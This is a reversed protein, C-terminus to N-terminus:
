QVTLALSITHISGPSPAATSATLTIAYTGAPTGSTQGVIGGGGAGGCSAEAVTLCVGGVSVSEGNTLDNWKTSIHIKRQGRRDETSEVKGLQEVLGTFM